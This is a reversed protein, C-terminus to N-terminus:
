WATTTYLQSNDTNSSQDPNLICSSLTQTTATSTGSCTGSSDYDNLSVTSGSLSYDQSTTSTIGYCGSYVTVAVPTTCPTAEYDTESYGATLSPFSSAL